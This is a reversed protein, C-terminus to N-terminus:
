RIERVSLPSTQLRNTMEIDTLLGKEAGLYELVSCSNITGASLARPLDFRHLIAWTFGVGFADGAGTTSLIQTNELAPCHLINEGEMAASGNAGDTICVIRVGAKRLTSLSDEVTSEGTFALAEEKNLLLISTHALLRAIGAEHMGKQIQCGGPNWTLGLAPSADFVAHIDEGIECSEENLHNLYIWDCAEMKERDFTAHHLHTNTGPTYLIIRDGSGVSLIISSSTTEGETVTAASVDVGESRMNELLLEGWKDSGVIGCFSSACGLRALGVATNSAGGGCSEIVEEVRIKAGVPLSLTEVEGQKTVLKKDTRVFLDLTAGGISLTRFTQPLPSM